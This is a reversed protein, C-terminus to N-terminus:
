RSTSRDHITYRGVYGYSQDDPDDTFGMAGIFGDVDANRSTSTYRSQYKTRGETYRSTEVSSSTTGVGTWTMDVPPNAGEGTDHNEVFLSGTLRATNLKRDMTFQVDGGFINRAGEFVCNTEPEEEDHHPGGGDPPLEGDPCTWDAVDGYVDARSSSAADVQLWGVHANGAVGPLTGLELWEASANMGSARYTWSEGAHAPGAASVAILPAVALAAAAAWRKGTM